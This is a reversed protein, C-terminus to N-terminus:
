ELFPYGIKRSNLTRKVSLKVSAWDVLRAEIVEPAPLVAVSGRCSIGDAVKASAPQSFLLEKGVELSSKM